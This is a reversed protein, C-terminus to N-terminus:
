ESFKLQIALNPICCFYLGVFNDSSGLGCFILGMFIILWVTDLHYTTQQQTQLM